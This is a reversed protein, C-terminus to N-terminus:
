SWWKAEPPAFRRAEGGPGLLKGGSVVEVVLGDGEHDHGIRVVGLNKAPGGGSNV